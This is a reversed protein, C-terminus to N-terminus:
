IEVAKNDYKFGKLTKNGIQIKAIEQKLKVSDLSKYIFAVQDFGISDHQLIKVVNGIQNKIENLLRKTVKGCKIELVTLKDKKIICDCLQPQVVHGFIEKQLSKDKIGLDPKFIYEIDKKSVSCANDKCIDSEEFIIALKEKSM